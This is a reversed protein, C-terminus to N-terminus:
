APSTPSSGARGAVASRRMFAELADLEAASPLRFDEGPERALSRTFISGSRVRAFERLSGRGARWRRVVPPRPSIM